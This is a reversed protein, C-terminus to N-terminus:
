FPLGALGLHPALLTALHKVFHETTLSSGYTLPVVLAAPLLAIARPQAPPTLRLLFLLGLGAGSLALATLVELATHRGLTVRSVAISLAVAPCLLRLLLIGHHRFFLPAVRALGGLILMAMAAHGSPNGVVTGSLYHLLKSLVILSLVVLVVGGWSLAAGRDQRFVAIFLLVALPLMVASDGINTIANQWLPGEDFSAPLFEM